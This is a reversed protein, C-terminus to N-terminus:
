EESLTDIAKQLQDDRETESNEEVKIDPEIGTEELNDMATTISTGKVVVDDILAVKKGIFRKLVNYELVRSSMICCNPTKSIEKQMILSDYFCIAKRAMFIVADYESLITNLRKIYKQIIDSYKQPFIDPVSLIREM